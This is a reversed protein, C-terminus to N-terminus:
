GSLGDEEEAVLGPVSRLSGSVGAAAPAPVPAAELGGTVLRSDPSAPPPGGTALLAAAAFRSDPSASRGGSLGLGASRTLDCSTSSGTVTRGRVADSAPVAPMAPLATGTGRRREPVVTLSRGVDPSALGATGCFGGARRALTPSLAAAAAAGAGAFPVSAAAAAAAGADADAEVDAEVVGADDAADDRACDATADRVADAAAGTAAPLVPDLPLAAGGGTVALRTDLAAGAVVGFGGGFGVAAAVAGGAGAAAAAAFGSGAADVADVAGASCTAPLRM